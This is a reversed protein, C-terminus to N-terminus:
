SAIQAPAGTLEGLTLNRKSEDLPLDYAEAGFKLPSKSLTLGFYKRLCDRAAMEQAIAVTEGATKGILEKNSYIGVIYAAMVTESGNQWLLRPEPEAKGANKNIAVLLGMPDAVSWVEDLTKGVLQTVVFDLVFNQARAIGSDEALGGIVAKFCNVITTDAVPFEATNILDKIGLNSAIHFLTKHSMLHTTIGRVGEEPLHPHTHRLYASIYDEALVEGKFALEENHMINLDDGEMDLEQRRATEKEVYSKDTFAQKLTSDKFEEGLRAGFSYVEANYNWNSWASRPREPEPGQEIRRRYLDTAVREAFQKVRDCASQHFNQSGVVLALQHSPNSIIRFNALSLRSFHRLTAMKVSKGM